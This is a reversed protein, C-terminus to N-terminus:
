RVLFPDMIDMINFYRPIFLKHIIVPVDVLIGIPFKVPRNALQLSMRTPQPEGLNIRNCVVLPMLSVSAGLNLLARDIVHTGLICPISSIRLDNEKKALKNEAIVNCEM